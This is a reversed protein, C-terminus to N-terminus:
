RKFRQCRLVLLVNALDTNKAILDVGQVPHHALCFTTCISQSRAQALDFTRVLLREVAPGAVGLGQDLSQICSAIATVRQAFQIAADLTFTDVGSGGLTPADERCRDFACLHSGLCGLLRLLLGHLGRLIDLALSLAQVVSVLLGQGAQGLLNHEEIFRGFQAAQAIVQGVTLKRLQAIAVLGQEFSLRDLEIRQVRAFGIVAQHGAQLGLFLGQQDGRALPHFHKLRGVAGARQTRVLVACPCICDGFCRERFCGLIATEVGRNGACRTLQDLDGFGFRSELFPM